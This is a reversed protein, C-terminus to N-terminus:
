ESALIALFHEFAFKLLERSCIPLYTDEYMSMDKQNSLMCRCVYALRSMVDDEAAATRGGAMGPDPCARCALAPVGGGFISACDVVACMSCTRNNIRPISCRRCARSSLSALLMSLASNSPSRKSAILFCTNAAVM